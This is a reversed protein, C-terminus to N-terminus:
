LEDKYKGMLDELAERLLSAETRGTRTSLKGLKELMAKPYYNSKLTMRDEVFIAVSGRRERKARYLAEDAARKLDTGTKGHQPRAAIGISIGIRRPVQPSAERSSFHSRIEEMVILAAEATTDPLAIVYEDGGYRAVLADSSVSGVLTRELSRLVTDGGPHGFTENIELFHDIDIAAMALPSTDELKTLAAEFEHRNLLKPHTMNGGKYFM